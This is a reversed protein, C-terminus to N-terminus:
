AFFAGAGRGEWSLNGRKGYCCGRFISIRSLEWKKFIQYSTCGEGDKIEMMAQTCAGKITVRSFTRSNVSGMKSMLPLTHCLWPMRGQYYFNVHNELVLSFKFYQHCDTKLFLKNLQVSRWPINSKKCNKNERLSKQLGHHHLISFNLSNFHELIWFVQLPAVEWKYFRWFSGKFFKRNTLGAYKALM